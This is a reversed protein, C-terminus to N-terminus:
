KSLLALVMAIARWSYINPSEISYLLILLVACFAAYPTDMGPTSWLVYGPTFLPMLGALCIAVIWRAGLRRALLVGLLIASLGFLSSLSRAAHEGDAGVAIAGALVLTWGLSTYGDVRDDLNYSLHGHRVLNEAYRLTIFTDDFQFKQVLSKERTWILSFVCLVGVIALVEALRRVSMKKFIARM